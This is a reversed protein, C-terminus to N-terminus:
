RSGKRTAFAEARHPRTREHVTRLLAEDIAEFMRNRRGTVVFATAMARDPDHEVLEAAGGWAFSPVHKPPYGAGFVNACVGVVTGTNFMTGIGCKSHDGMFLGAFRHGSDVMGDETWLRVNGYNNKLDSTDTGAGINTWEGLYSHGLFGDHQKNGYGHLISGEVEGGVKCWAGISTGGYIKAGIKILSNTGIYAPGMIVANPMVRAGEGLIIPGGSADLVAGADVRAGKRSLIRVKRVLHAGPAAVPLQPEKGKRTLAFDDMLTAENWHVLDWPRGVLRVAERVPKPAIGKPWPPVGGTKLSEELWALFRRALGQSLRAAVIRGGSELVPADNLQRLLRDLEGKYFLACGNLFLIDDGSGIANVPVGPFAREVTPRLWDRTVFAPRDRKLAATQATLRRGLTTVGIRLDFAPRTLALPYLKRWAADEFLVLNPGPRTDSM